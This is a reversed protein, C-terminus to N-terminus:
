AYKYDHKRGITFVALRFNGAFEKSILGVSYLLSSWKIYFISVLWEMHIFVYMKDLTTKQIQLM